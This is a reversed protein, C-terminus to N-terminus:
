QIRDSYGHGAKPSQSMIWFMVGGVSQWKILIGMVRKLPNLCLAMRSMRSLSLMLILIGMVRKLPNLCDRSEENSLQGQKDSYGHGAKPSQSELDTLKHEPSFMSILIGM